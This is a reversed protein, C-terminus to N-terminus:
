EELLREKLEKVKVKRNENDLLLFALLMMQYLEDYWKELRNKKMKAVYEKYKAKDKKSRNNHRININNLMFFIDDSLQKDIKQLEKRKPELEAALSLLIGKKLEIQGCLSNHNYRIIDIALASDVIEVVATVEPKDEVVLARDKELYIRHNYKELDDIMVDRIHFFNNTWKYSSEKDMLKQYALLWFNYILEILTIFSEVDNKAANRLETYNIAKLFDKVDVFHGRHIWDRFCFKDVFEFLTYQSSYYCLSYEDVSMTIIRDVENSMNITELAIDFINKRM